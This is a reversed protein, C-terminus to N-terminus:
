SLRSEYHVDGTWCRSLRFEVPDFALDLAIRSIQLLPVGAECGLLHADDGEAAVAKLRETASSITIGFRQSYLAYVNNPVEAVEAFYPFRAKPLAITEVLLPREELTRLRKIRWVTDTGHINLGAAEDQTARDEQVGLVTSNPFVNAGSDPILRFFRFLIQSEEVESVFTGRGQKRVLLNDSTM